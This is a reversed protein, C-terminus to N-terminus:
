NMNSQMMRQNWEKFEKDSMAQIMTRIDGWVEARKAKEVNEKEERTLKMTISRIFNFVIQKQEDYRMSILNEESLVEAQGGSSEALYAFTNSSIIGFARGDLTGAVYDFEVIEIKRGM